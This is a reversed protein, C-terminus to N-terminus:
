QLPVGKGQCGSFKLAGERSVAKEGEWGTGAVATEGYAEGQVWGVRSPAELDGTLTSVQWM